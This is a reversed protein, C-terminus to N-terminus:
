LDVPCHLFAQLSECGLELHPCSAQLEAGGSGSVQQEPVSGLFAAEERSSEWVQHMGTLLPKMTSTLGSLPTPPRSEVEEEMMMKM